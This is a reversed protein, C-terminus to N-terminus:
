LRFFHSNGTFKGVPLITNNNIDLKLVTMEPVEVETRNYKVSTFMCSNYFLTSSLRCLYIDKTQKNICWTSFTGNLKSFTKIIADLEDTLKSYHDILRPIISSDVKSYHDNFNFEDILENFNTLVGNHAVLYNNYEFPHINEECVNREASTPAQLHGLFYRSNDSFPKLLDLMEVTDKTKFTHITNENTLVTCGFSFGGREKNCLYLRIFGTLDTAGFIACM